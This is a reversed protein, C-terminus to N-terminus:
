RSIPDWVAVLNPRFHSTCTDAGGGCSALVLLVAAGSTLKDLGM